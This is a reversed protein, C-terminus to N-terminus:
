EEEEEDELMDMQASQVEALVVFGSEDIAFEMGRYVDEGDLSSKKQLTTTVKYNFAPMKYPTGGKYGYATGLKIKLTIDGQEFEGMAIKKAVDILSINLDTQMEQFKKDQLSFIKM